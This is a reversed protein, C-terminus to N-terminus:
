TDLIMILWANRLSIFVDSCVWARATRLTGVLEHSCPGAYVRLAYLKQTVPLVHDQTLKYQVRHNTFTSPACLNSDSPRPQGGSNKSRQVKLTNQDNQALMM